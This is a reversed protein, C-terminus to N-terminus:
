ENNDINNALYIGCLATAVVAIMGSLFLVISSETVNIITTLIVGGFILKSTDILYDSIIKITKNRLKLHKM